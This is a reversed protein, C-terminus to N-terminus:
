LPFNPISIIRMQCIQTETIMSILRVQCTQTETDSRVLNHEWALIKSPLVFSKAHPSVHSASKLHALARNPRSVISLAEFTLGSRKNAREFDENPLWLSAVSLTHKTNLQNLGQLSTSTVQSTALISYERRQFDGLDSALVTM